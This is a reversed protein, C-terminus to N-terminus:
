PRQTICLIKAVTLRFSKRIGFDTNLPDLSAM